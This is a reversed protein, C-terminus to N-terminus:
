HSQTRSRSPAEDEVCEALAISLSKAMDRTLQFPIGAGGKKKLTLVLSGDATGGIDYGDAELVTVSQRARGDPRQTEAFADLLCFALEALDNFDLSLVFEGGKATACKVLARGDESLHWGAVSKVAVGYLQDSM